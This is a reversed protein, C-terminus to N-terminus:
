GYLPYRTVPKVSVASPNAAYAPDLGATSAGGGFMSSLNDWGGGLGAMTAMSGGMGLVTGATKWGNGANNAAELELPLVANSGRMFSGLTGLNAADTAQERSIGGLLDGFSRMKALAENQQAGFAAAKDLQKARENQVLVNSNTPVAETPADTPLAKSQAAFYDGLNESKKGQNASFDKYRGQSTDNIAAAQQNYGRQRETEAAMAADRKKAVASNAQMNALLSGGTMAAGAITLPDCM